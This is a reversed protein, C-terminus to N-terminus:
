MVWFFKFTYLFTKALLKLTDESTTVDVQQIVCM